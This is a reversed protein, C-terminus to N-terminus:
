KPEYLINSHFSYWSYPHSEEKIKVICKLSYRVFLGFRKFQKDAICMYIM